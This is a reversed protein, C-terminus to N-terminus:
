ERKAAKRELEFELLSTLQKLTNREEKTLNDKESKVYVDVLYIKEFVEFDVYIVRVSGSKGRNEFAFRMKRAKGTGQMVPGIKPNDLLERELRKMDAETLGLKEWKSRFSPLEVYERSMNYEMM